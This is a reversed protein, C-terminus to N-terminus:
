SEEEKGPTGAGIVVKIELSLGSFDGRKRSECAGANCRVPRCYLFFANSLSHLGPSITGEYLSLAESATILSAHCTKQL